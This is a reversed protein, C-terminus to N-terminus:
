HWVGAGGFRRSFIGAPSQYGHIRGQKDFVVLWGKGSLEGPRVGAISYTKAGVMGTFRLAESLSRGVGFVEQPRRWPAQYQSGDRRKNHTLFRGAHWLGDQQFLNFLERGFLRQMITAARHVSIENDNARNGM